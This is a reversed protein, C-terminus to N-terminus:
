KKKDMGLIKADTKVIEKPTKDCNVRIWSVCHKKFEALSHYVIGFSEKEEIFALMLSKAREESLKHRKKVLEIVLSASLLDDKLETAHKPWKHDPKTSDTHLLLKRDIYPGWFNNFSIFKSNITVLGARHLEQINERFKDYDRFESEFMQFAMANDNSPELEKFHKILCNIYVMKSQASLKKNSVSSLIKDIVYLNIVKLM